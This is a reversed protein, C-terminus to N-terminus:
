VDEDADGEFYKAAVDAKRGEIAEIAKESMLDHINQKFATPNEEIDQLFQQLSFM